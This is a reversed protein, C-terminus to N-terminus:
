IYEITYVILAASAKFPDWEITYLQVTTNAVVPSQYILKGFFCKKSTYSSQKMCTNEGSVEVVTWWEHGM